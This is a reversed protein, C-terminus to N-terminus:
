DSGNSSDLGAFLENICDVWVHLLGEFDSSNITVHLPKSNLASLGKTFLQRDYGVISSAVIPISVIWSYSLHEM